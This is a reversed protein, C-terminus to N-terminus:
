KIRPCPAQIRNLTSHNLQTHDYIGLPVVWATGSAADMHGDQTCISLEESGPVYIANQENVSLCHLAASLAGLRSSTLGLHAATAKSVHLRTTQHPGLNQM